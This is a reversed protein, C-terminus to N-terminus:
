RAGSSHLPSGYSALASMQDKPTLRESSQESRWGNAPAALWAASTTRIMAPVSGGGGRLYEAGSPRISCAQMCRCGACRGEASCSSQTGVTSRWAASCPSMCMIGASALTCAAAASAGDAGSGAAAAAAAADRADAAADAATAAAQGRATAVLAFLHSGPRWALTDLIREEVNSMHHRLMRPLTPEHKVFSELVKCMDFAAVGFYGLTKPFLLTVRNKVKLVVEVACALMARHFADNGLLGSFDFTGTAGGSAGVRRMRREETTLIAELV